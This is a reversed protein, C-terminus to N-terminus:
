VAPPAAEPGGLRAKPHRVDRGEVLYFVYGAINKAHDGIRELSKLAFLGQVGPAVTASDATMWQTLQEVSAKYASDLLDDDRRTREAQALDLRALADLAGRLMAASIRSLGAIEAVIPLEARVASSEILNRAFRAVKKAEDGVRELDNVTKSLTLITRLDIGLPARLAILQAVEEDARLEFRDIERDGRIVRRAQEADGRQLADVGLRLQEEVAGGMRIVLDRLTSLEEDYKKLTHGGVLSM